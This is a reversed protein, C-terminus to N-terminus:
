TKWWLGKVMQYVTTGLLSRAFNATLSKFRVLPLTRLCDAKRLSFLIRKAAPRNTFGQIASAGPQREYIAQVTQNGAIRQFGVCALLSDLTELCFNWAHANQLYLAPDRYSSRISFIGPVEVYLVGKPNLLDRIEVLEKVPDVFHELVHSLVILDAKGFRKLSRGDGRVLALGQSKGYELAKVGYDCGAVVAGMNKFHALNGGAGCGIEFVVKPVIKAFPVVYSRILKGREVQKTFLAEEYNPSDSYIKRYLSSYFDELSSSNLFPDSRM